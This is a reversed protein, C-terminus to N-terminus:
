FIHKLLMKKARVIELSTCNVGKDLFIGEWLSSKIVLAFKKASNLEERGTSIIQHSTKTYHEWVCSHTWMRSPTTSGYVAIPDVHSDHHLAEM